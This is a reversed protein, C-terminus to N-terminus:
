CISNLSSTQVYIERTKIEAITRKKWSFEICSWRKWLGDCVELKIKEIGCNTDYILRSHFHRHLYFKLSMSKPMSGFSLRFHLLTPSLICNLQVTFHFVKGNMGKWSKWSFFPLIFSNILRCEKSLCNAFSAILQTLWRSETRDQHIPKCNM